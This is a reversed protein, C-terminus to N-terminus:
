SYLGNDIIYKYVETPLLMKIKKEDFKKLANRSDSSSADISNKLTLRLIKRKSKLNYNVKISKYNMEHSYSKDLKIINSINSQFGPREVLVLDILSLIKKAEFWNHFSDAYDSGLILFYNEKNNKCIIKKLTQYTYNKKTCDSEIDSILFNIKKNLALNIMNKVHIFDSKVSSKKYHPNSNPVIIIKNLNLMKTTNIILNVHGFHIPDFAGGLIGIRM